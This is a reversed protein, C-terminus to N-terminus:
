FGVNLQAVVKYTNEPDVTGVKYFDGMFGYAGRLSLDYKEAFKKGVMAAVEIGLDSGAVSATTAGNITDDAAMFYGAGYNLYFAEPLKLKGSATLAILGYGGYAANLAKAGQSGNNYYVDTGFIMLNDNHFEFAAQNASFSDLDTASDDAPIYVFHLKVDGNPIIANGYLNVMWATGETGATEQASLNRYLFNGAFGFDKVRYDGYVGFYYDDSLAPTGNKAAGSNNKVAGVSAGFKLQDNAKIEGNVAYFDVDDSNARSGEEWKMWGVTLNVPGAMGSASVGIMDDDTVFSEYIGNGFGFGQIGTRVSWTTDPVKFDVYANKTEIGVGDASLRGGSGAVVKGGTEGFPTDYEGYWVVSVYDNLVDTVKMRLRQDVWNSDNATASTSLNEATGQVRYYGNLKVEALAPVALGLVLLLAVLGKIANKV